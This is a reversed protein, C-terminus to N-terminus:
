DVQSVYRSEVWGQQGDPLVFRVWEGDRELLRMEAASFLRYIELYTEDPGSMVQATLSVVVARPQQTEVYFRSFFLAMLVAVAGGYIALGYWLWRSRRVWWLVFWVFWGFWALLALWGLEYRTLFVVSFDALMYIPEDFRGQLNAREGRIRSINAAIADDRPQLRQAKLYNVLADGIQGNEYYANGLNYYVSANFVGADLVQQYVVIATDYDGQVYAQEAEQLLRAPSIQLLLWGMVLLRIVAM